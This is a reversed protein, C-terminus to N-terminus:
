NYDGNFDAGFDGGSTLNYDAINNVETAPTIGNKVYYDVVDKNLPEQVIKLKQGAFLVADFGALEPNDQLLMIAADVDGYHQLAIDYITQNGQVIIIKM